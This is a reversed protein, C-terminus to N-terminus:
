ISGLQRISVEIFQEIRGDVHFKFTFRFAQEPPQKFQQEIIRPRGRPSGSRDVVSQPWEYEAVTLTGPQVQVQENSCDFRKTWDVSRFNQVGLMM